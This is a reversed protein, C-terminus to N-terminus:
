SCGRRDRARYAATIQRQDLKLAEMTKIEHDEIECDGKQGGHSKELESLQQESKAIDAAAGRKRADALQRKAEGLAADRRLYVGGDVLNIVMRLAGFTEFMESYSMYGRGTAPDNRYSGLAVAGGRKDYAQRPEYRLDTLARALNALEPPLQEAMDIAQKIAVLFRKGDDTATARISRGKYTETATAVVAPVLTNHVATVAATVLERLREVTVTTAYTENIRLIPLTDQSDIVVFPRTGGVFGIGYLAKLYILYRPSGLRVSELNGILWKLRPAEPGTASPAKLVHNIVLEVKYGSSGDPQKIRPDGSLCPGLKAQWAVPDIKAARQAPSLKAELQALAPRAGPAGIDAALVAWRYAEVLDAPM